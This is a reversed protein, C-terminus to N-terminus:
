VAIVRAFSCTTIMPSSAAIRSATALGAEANELDTPKRDSSCHLRTSAHIRKFEFRINQSIATCFSLQFGDFLQDVPMVTSTMVLLAPLLRM